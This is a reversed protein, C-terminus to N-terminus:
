REGGYKRNVRDGTEIEPACDCWLGSWYLCDDDHRVELHVVTGPEPPASRLHALIADLYRPRRSM